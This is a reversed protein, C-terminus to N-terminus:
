GATVIISTSESVFFIQKLKDVAGSLTDCLRSRPNHAHHSSDRISGSWVSYCVTISQQLVELLPLTAHSEGRQRNM